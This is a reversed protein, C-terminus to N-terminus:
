CGENAISSNSYVCGCYHQRYLEHQKAMQMTYMFGSEKKFDISLFYAGGIRNGITIIASSKKHPSITLTTTFFDCGLNQAQRMTANLRMEYCLLCRKGGEAESKYAECMYLWMSPECEGDHLTINSLSCIKKAAEHRRLYEDRPHINPNYFFGEVVFGEKKLREICWAACIGCCIHLLIKKM